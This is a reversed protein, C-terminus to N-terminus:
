DDKGELKALVARAVFSVDAEWPMRLRKILDDTM